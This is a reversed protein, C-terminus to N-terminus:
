LLKKKNKKKKKRIETKKGLCKWGKDLETVLLYTHAVASGRVTGVISFALVECSQLARDLECTGLGGKREKGQGWTSPAKSYWYAESKGCRKDDHRGLDASRPHYKEWNWIEVSSATHPNTPKRHTTTGLTMTWLRATCAAQRKHVKWLAIPKIYYRHRLNPSFLWWLRVFPL